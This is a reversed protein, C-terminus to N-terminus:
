RGLEAARVLLWPFDGGNKRTRQLAKNPPAYNLFSLRLMPKESLHIPKAIHNLCNLTHRWTLLAPQFSEISAANKSGLFALSRM